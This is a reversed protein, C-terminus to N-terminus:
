RTRNCTKIVPADNVPSVSFEVMFTEAATNEDGDDSLGLVIDCLGGLENNTNETITLENNAIDVSFASCADTTGDNYAMASWNYVQRTPAQENAMDRIYSRTTNSVDGLFKTHTGFGEPLINNFGADESIVPMCDQREVNCIVPADNVNDVTFTINHDDVLGNSDTVEFAFVVTGFQDTLPTIIV